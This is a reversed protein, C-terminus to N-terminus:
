AGGRSLYMRLDYISNELKVLYDIADVINLGLGDLVADRDSSYALMEELTGGPRYGLMVRRLDHAEQSYRELLLNLDRQLIVNM